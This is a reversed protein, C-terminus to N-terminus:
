IKSKLAGQRVTKSSIDGTKPLILVLVTFTVEFDQIYASM